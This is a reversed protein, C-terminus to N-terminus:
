VSALLADIMEGVTKMVMANASYNQEITLLRQLEQDMNVGEISSRTASIAEASALFGDRSEAAATRVLNHETITMAAFDVLTATNAVGVSPDFSRTTELVSLFARVQTGDNAAGPTASGAGDRLLRLDGGEEPLFAANVVIRQALPASGGPASDSFLSEGGPAVTADAAAFGEILGRAIEDIQRGLRPAIERRMEVHGSLSGESIGRGGSIGPTIEIDGATVSGPGVNWSLRVAENREMIPAGGTTFLSIEGRASRELRVDMIRSLGDMARSLDDEFAASRLTGPGERFIGEGIRAIEELFGNAEAVDRGAGANAIEIVSTVSRSALNLSRALDKASEAVGRQVATEGPNNALITLDSQFSSLRSALSGPSDTGGLSSAHAEIDGFIATQRAARSIELRHLADISADIERRIGNAYIDSNPGSTVSLTKRGYGETTVNSINRSTLEAWKGVVSLGNASASLASSLGM